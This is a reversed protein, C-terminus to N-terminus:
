CRAVRGPHTLWRQIARRWDEISSASFSGSATVGHPDLRWGVGHIGDAVHAAIAHMYRATNQGDIVRKARSGILGPVDRWSM